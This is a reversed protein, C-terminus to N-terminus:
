SKAFFNFANFILYVERKFLFDKNTKMLKNDKNRLKFAKLSM